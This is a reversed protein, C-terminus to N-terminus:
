RLLVGTVWELLVGTMRKICADMCTICSLLGDPCCVRLDGSQCLWIVCLECRRGFKEGSYCVRIICECLVGGGESFLLSVSSYCM